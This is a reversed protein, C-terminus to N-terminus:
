RANVTGGAVAAAAQRAGARLARKMGIRVMRTASRRAKFGADCDLCAFEVLGDGYGGFREMTYKEIDILFGTEKSNDTCCGECDSDSCEDYVTVDITDGGNRLRLTKLAYTDADKEHVAVINHDMVWQETQQAGNEYFAFQGVYDCGHYYKCEDSNPDPYSEFNTLNANQWDLEGGSGGGGGSGGSGGAGGAGGAGGHGGTGGSGGAGGAGGAGGSGGAGGAGGGGGNDGGCATFLV